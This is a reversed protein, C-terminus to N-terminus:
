QGRGFALYAGAGIFPLYKRESDTSESLFAPLDLQLAAGLRMRTFRMTEVGVMAQGFLGKGQYTGTDAAEIGLAAGVFPSTNGRSLFRKYEIALSILEATYPARETENYCYTQTSACPVKREGGGGPGLVRFKAGASYDAGNYGLWADGGPAPNRSETSAAAGLGFAFQLPTGKLKNQRTEDLALNEVTATAEVPVERAISQALRPAAEFADEIANVRLQASRLVRGDEGEQTAKMLLQSGLKLVRFRHAAGGSDLKGIGRLESLASCFIEGIAKADEETLARSSEVFCATAPEGSTNNQASAPSAALTASVAAISALLYQTSLMPKM